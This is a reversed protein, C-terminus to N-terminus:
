SPRRRIARRTAAQHKLKAWLGICMNELRIDRCNESLSKAFEYQELIIQKPRRIQGLQMMSLALYLKCRAIITPDGIQLAIRFQHKSINGATMAHQEFDREESEALQSYAGGLTSLWAMVDELEIKAQILTGLRNAWAKDTDYPLDNNVVIKLNFHTRGLTSCKDHWGSAFFRSNRTIEEIVTSRFHSSNRLINVFVLFVQCKMNVRWYKRKMQINYNNQNLFGRICECSNVVCTESCNSLSNENKCSLIHIENHEIVMKLWRKEVIHVSVLVSNSLEVFRSSGLAVAM